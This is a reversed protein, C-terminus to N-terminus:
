ASGQQLTMFSSRVNAFNGSTLFAFNSVKRALLFCLWRFREFPVNVGFNLFYDVSFAGHLKM